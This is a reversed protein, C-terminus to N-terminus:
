KLTEAHCEGYKCSDVYGKKYKKYLELLDKNSSKSYDRDLSKTFKLFEKSVVKFKKSFEDIIKLNKRYLAFVSKKGQNWIKNDVFADWVGNNILVYIGNLKVNLFDKYFIYHAPLVLLVPYPCIHKKYVGVFKKLNM